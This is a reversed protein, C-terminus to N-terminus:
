EKLLQGSLRILEIEAIKATNLAEFYRIEADVANNQAERIELSNSKGIRYRELAIDVNEKAVDLNEQELQALEVSNKYTLYAARISTILQTKAQELTLQSSEAQIKANQINRNQNMGDFLTMTATLGYTLGSSKNSQWFGAEANLSTYSYGLNFDLSPLRGREYEVKSLIAAERSSTLYQINSNNALALETIESESIMPNLEYSYDLSFNFESEQIALVELFQFKRVSIVEKQKILASQDTNYDVQAQLYELKSAKGVEYKDKSIKVREESLELASELLAIREQELAINYFAKMVDSITTQLQAQFSYINQQQIESLRQKAAFMKLGDFLTWDLNAAANYTTTNASNIIRPDGTFPHQETDMISERAFATAEVNPLFGANGLTNNNETIRLNNREIQIAYNRDLAIAVADEVTLLTDLGQAIVGFPIFLFLFRIM